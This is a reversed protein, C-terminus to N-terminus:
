ESRFEKLSWPIIGKVEPEQAELNGSVERHKGEEKKEAYSYLFATYQGPPLSFNSIYSNSPLAPHMTDPHMTYLHGRPLNRILNHFEKPERISERIRDLNESLSGPLFALKLRFKFKNTQKSPHVRATAVGDCIRLYYVYTFNAREERPNDYFPRQDIEIPFPRAPCIASLIDLADETLVVCRKIASSNVSNPILVESQSITHWYDWEQSNRDPPGALIIKIDEPTLVNRPDDDRKDESSTANGQTFKVGDQDVISVDIELFCVHHERKRWYAMPFYPTYALSVYKHNGKQLDLDQSLANGGLIIKNKLKEQQLREKSLLGHQAVLPVNFVHTFHYLRQVGNQRLYNSKKM